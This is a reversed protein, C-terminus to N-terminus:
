VKFTHDVSLIKGSAKAIQAALAIEHKLIFSVFCSTLYKSSPVFGGYGKLFEPFTAIPTQNMLIGASERCQIQKSYFLNRLEFYRRAHNELLMRRFPALGFSESVSTRLIDLLKLDIGSRKTLHAPYLNRVHSPLTRILDAHNGNFKAKCKSCEFRSTVIYYCDHLDVIRRGLPSKQWGDSTCPENCKICRVPIDKMGEADRVKGMLHQPCWFFVRPMIYSRYNPMDSKSKPDVTRFWFDGGNAAYINRGKQAKIFKEVSDEMFKRAESMSNAENPESGEGAPTIDLTDEDVVIDDPENSLDFILQDASEAMRAMNELLPSTVPDNRPNVNVSLPEISSIMIKNVKEPM